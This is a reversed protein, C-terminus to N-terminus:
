WHLGLGGVLAVANVSTFEFDDDFLPLQSKPVDIKGFARGYHVEAYGTVPRKASFVRVGMVVSPAIKSETTSFPFNQTYPRGQSSFNLYHLAFGGGGSLAAHQTHLLDAVFEGRITFDSTRQKLRDDPPHVNGPSPTPWIGYENYGTHDLASFNIGARVWLPLYPVERKFVRRALSIDVVPRSDYNPHDHKNYGGGLLLVTTNGVRVQRPREQARVAPAAALLAALGFWGLRERIRM